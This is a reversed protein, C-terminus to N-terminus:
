LSCNTSEYVEATDTLNAVHCDTYTYSNPLLTPCGDTVSDPSPRGEVGGRVVEECLVRM